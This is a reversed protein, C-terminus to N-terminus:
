SSLSSVVSIDPCPPFDVADPKALCVPKIYPTFNPVAKELRILMVDPTNPFEESTALDEHIFFTEMKQKYIGESGGNFIEILTYLDDTGSKAKSAGIHIFTKDIAETLDEKPKIPVGEVIEWMARSCYMRHNGACACHAATLIYRSNILSGGCVEKNLLLVVMWPIPKKAEEGGVIRTTESTAKKGIPKVIPDVIDKAACKNEQDYSNCEGQINKMLIDDDTYTGCVEQCNFDLEEEKFSRVLSTASCLLLFLVIM